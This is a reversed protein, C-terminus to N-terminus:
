ERHLDRRKLLELLQRAAARKHRHALLDDGIQQRRHRREQLDGLVCVVGKQEFADLAALVHRAIRKEALIREQDEARAAAPRRDLPRAGDGLALTREDLREALQHRIEARREDRIQRAEGAAGDAVEPVARRGPELRHEAIEARASVARILGAEHQEVRHEREIVDLM